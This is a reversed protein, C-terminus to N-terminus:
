DTVFDFASGAPAYIEYIVLEDPGDNSLGHPSGAPIYVVDEARIAHVAGDVTLTGVGRVVIYVNDSISHRHIRGKAGGPVLRNMHVDLKETGCRTDVFPLAVGRERDLPQPAVEDPRFIRFNNSKM